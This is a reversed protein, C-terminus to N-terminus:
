YADFLVKLRTTVSVNYESYSYLVICNNLFKGCDMYKVPTAGVSGLIALFVGLIILKMMKCLCFYCRNAVFVIVINFLSQYNHTFM